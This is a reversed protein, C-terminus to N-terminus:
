NMNFYTYIMVRYIDVTLVVWYCLRNSHWDLLRSITPELGATPFKKKMKYNESEERPECSSDALVFSILRSM